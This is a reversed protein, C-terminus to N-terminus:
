KDTDHAPAPDPTQGPVRPKKKKEGGGGGGGLVWEACQGFRLCQLHGSRLAEEKLLLVQLRPLDRQGSAWELTRQKSETDSGIYVTTHTGSLRLWLHRCNLCCQEGM